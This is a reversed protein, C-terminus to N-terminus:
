GEQFSTEGQLLLSLFFDRHAPTHATVGLLGLPLQHADDAARVALDAQVQGAFLGAPPGVQARRRGAQGFGLLRAPQFTRQVLGHRLFDVGAQRLLDGAGFLLCLLRHVICLSLEPRSPASPSHRLAPLSRYPYSRTSSATSRPLTLRTRSAQSALARVACCMISVQSPVTAQSTMGRVPSSSARSVGLGAATKATVSAFRARR